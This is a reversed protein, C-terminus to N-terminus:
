ESDTNNEGGDLNADYAEEGGSTKEDAPAEEEASLEEESIDETSVEEIQTKESPVEEASNKGLLDALTEKKIVFWFIAFGGVGLILISGIVIAVIAGTDIGKETEADNVGVIAYRSFHDTVFTVTGDENVRTECPTVNGNDDIYVVQIRQFGSMNEPAPLTVEVAGGPQVTVGDLLLSIDYTVLVAAKVDGLVTEINEKM